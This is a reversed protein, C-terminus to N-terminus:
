KRHNQWYQKIENFWLLLAAQLEQFPFQNISDLYNSTNTIFLDDLNKQDDQDLSDFLGFLIQQEQYEFHLEVQKMLQYLSKDEGKSYGKLKQRLKRIQLTYERQWQALQQWLQQSNQKSLRRQHLSCFSCFLLININLQWQNQFQLATKAINTQQYVTCSFTWFPNATASVQPITGLNM